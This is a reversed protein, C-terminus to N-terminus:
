VVVVGGSTLRGLLGLCWGIPRRASGTVSERAGGELVAASAAVVGVILGRGAVGALVLCVDPRAGDGRRARPWGRGASYGWHASDGFMTRRPVKRSWTQVALSRPVPTGRATLGPGGEGSRRGPQRLVGIRASTQYGNRLEHVTARAFSRGSGFIFRTGPRNRPRPRSLHLGSPVASCGGRSYRASAARDALPWQDFSPRPPTSSSV